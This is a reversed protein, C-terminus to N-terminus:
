CREAAGREVALRATLQIAARCAMTDHTEEFREYDRVVHQIPSSIM